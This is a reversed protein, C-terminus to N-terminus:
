EQARVSQAPHIRLTTELSYGVLWEVSASMFQWDQSTGTGFFLGCLVALGLSSLAHCSSSTM